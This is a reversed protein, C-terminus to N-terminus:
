NITIDHPPDFITEFEKMNRKVVFKYVVGLTLSVALIGGVVGGILLGTGNDETNNSGRIATPSVTPAFTLRPGTPSKTVPSVTPPSTLRVPSLTPVPTNGRECLRCDLNNPTQARELRQEQPPIPTDGNGCAAANIACYILGDAYGM